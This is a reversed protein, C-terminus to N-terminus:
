VSQGTAYQQVTMRDTLCVKTITTASSFFTVKFKMTVLTGTENPVIRPKETFTPPFGSDAAAKEAPKDAAAKEPEAPKKGGDGEDGAIFSFSKLM